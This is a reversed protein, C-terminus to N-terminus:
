LILGYTDVFVCYLSIEYNTLSEQYLVSPYGTLSYGLTKIKSNTIQITGNHLLVLKDLCFGRGFINRDTAIPFSIPPLTSHFPSIQFFAFKQIVSQIFSGVCLDLLFYHIM